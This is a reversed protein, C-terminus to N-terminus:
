VMRSLRDVRHSVGVMHTLVITLAAAVAVTAGSVAGPLLKWLLGFSFFCGFLSLVTLAFTLVNM